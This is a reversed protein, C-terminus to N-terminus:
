VVSAVDHLSDVVHTPDAALDYGDRHPRRVFAADVGAADAVLLDANSDGVFLADAPAVALDALARDLYHTEPKKRRLGRLSPERGYATVFLDDLGATELVAEVTAHQNNSVLGLPRDLDRLAAVDDYLPKEGTALAARQAASARAECAAWFAAPDLDCRECARTIRDLHGDAVAECGDPPPDVGFGEFTRAAARRLVRRETPRVLVGDNDFVVAEYGM